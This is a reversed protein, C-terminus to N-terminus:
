DGQDEIGGKPVSVGLYEEDYDTLLAMSLPVLVEALKPYRSKIDQALDHSIEYLKHQIADLKVTPYQKGAEFRSMGCTHAKGGIVTPIGYLRCTIPRSEYLECKDSEDLLPCRIRHQAMKELIKNESEGNQYAKSADRKLKYVKRDAANARKILQVRQEKPIVKDFQSKVFMAEILTLDFLAHCCDACGLKCAVCENYEEQVKKFVADVQDVLTIYKDFYPEFDM